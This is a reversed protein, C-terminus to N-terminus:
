SNRAPDFLAHDRSLSELPNHDGAEMEFAARERAIEDPLSSTSIRALRCPAM